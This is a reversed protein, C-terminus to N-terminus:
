KNVAINKEQYYLDGNSAIGEIKIKFLGTQDGTYFNFRNPQDASFVTFDKWFLTSLYQKEEVNKLKQSDMGYFQRATYIALKEKEFVCGQYIIERVDYGGSSSPYMLLYKKGKVPPPNNDPSFASHAPCNLYGGSCVYDGCENARYGYARAINQRASIKVENLQNSQQFSFSNSVHLNNRNLDYEVLPRKSINILTNILQEMPNAVQMTPNVLKGRKDFLKVDLQKNEVVTIDEPKPYIYGFKDTSLMSWSSDRRITVTMAEKLSGGDAFRFLAHINVSHYKISKKSFTDAKMIRQWLYRRWGSVMLVQKLREKKGELSISSNLFSYPDNKVIPNMYYCAALDQRSATDLRSLQVCSITFLGGSAQKGASDLSVNVNVKERTQYSNKDTVVVARVGGTFHAFFLEEAVPRGQQDILTITNLGKRIEALPINLKKVGKDLSILPTMVSERTYQNTVVINVDAAETVSIEINLTDGALADAIHLVFGSPLADPLSYEKGKINGNGDLLNVAYKIGSKPRLMFVGCGDINTSITDIVQGNELLLAKVKANNGYSDLVQFAVRSLLGLVLDGGEPYFGFRFENPKQLPLRLAFPQQSNGIHTTTHLLPGFRQLTKQSFAMVASGDFGYKVKLADNEGLRYVLHSNLREAATVGAPFVAKALVLVSDKGPVEKIEFDVTITPVAGALIRLTKRFVHVPEGNEGVINSCALLLYNGPEIEEPLTLSGSCTWNKILYNKRLSVGSTDERLLAVSLIAPRVLTDIHHMMVYAAFWITESPLYVNKDTTVYLMDAPHSFNYREVQSSISDRSIAQGSVSACAIFFLGAILFLTRNM